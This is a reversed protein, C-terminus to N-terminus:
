KLEIAQLYIGGKYCGKMLPLAKTIASKKSKATINEVTEVWKDTEDFVEVKFTKEKMKTEEKMTEKPKLHHPYNLDNTM